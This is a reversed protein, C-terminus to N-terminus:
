YKTKNAYQLQPGVGNNNHHTQKLEKPLEKDMFVGGNEQM